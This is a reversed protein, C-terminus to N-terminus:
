TCLFVISTLKYCSFFLIHCFIIWEFTHKNLMSLFWWCWKLRRPWLIERSLFGNDWAWCPGRESVCWPLRDANWYVLGRGVGDRNHRVLMTFPCPPLPAPPPPNPRSVARYSQRCLCESLFGCRLQYTNTPQWNQTTTLHHTYVTHDQLVYDATVFFWSGTLRGTIIGVSSRLVLLVGFFTTRPNQHLSAQRANQGADQHLALLFRSTQIGYKTM